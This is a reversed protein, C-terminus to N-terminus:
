GKLGGVTFKSSILKQSAIYLLLSPIMVLVMGALIEPMQLAATSGQTANQQFMYMGYALNPTSPYWILFAEYTNWATVFGLIYLTACTPIVMPIIIKIMITFDNAMDIKAAETYAMPIMKLAGYLIMFNMGSFATAPPLLIAVYMNDYLGLKTYLIMQAAINGVIPILMIIIGLNYLFKSGRFRYRSMVYAVLTTWVIGNLPSLISYYLSNVFMDVAGYTYLGQTIKLGQLARIYNSPMFEKPFSFTNLTYEWSPKFSTYLMWIIPIILSVCYVIALTGWASWIAASLVGKGKRTVTLELKPKIHLRIRFLFTLFMILYLVAVAIILEIM